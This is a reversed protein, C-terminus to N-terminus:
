NTYKKSNLLTSIKAINKKTERVQRVNKLQKQAVKFKLDRLKDQLDSLIIKLENESKNKLDKIKM